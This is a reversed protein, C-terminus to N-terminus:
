ARQIRLRLFPGGKPAIEERHAGLSEQGAAEAAPGVSGGRAGFWSRAVLVGVGIGLVAAVILLFATSGFFGVTRSATTLTAIITVVMAIAMVILFGETGRARLRHALAIGGLTCFLVGITSGPEGVLYGLRRVGVNLLLAPFWFAAFALVNTTVSEVTGRLTWFDPAADLDGATSKGMLRRGLRHFYGMRQMPAATPIAGGLAEALARELSQASIGAEEAIDRLRAVPMRTAGDTDLEIARAIVRQAVHEPLSLSEPSRPTDSM